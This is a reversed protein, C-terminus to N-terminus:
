AVVAVIHQGNEGGDASDLLEVHSRGLRPMVGLRRFNGVSVRKDLLGLGEVLGDVETRQCLFLIGKSVSM